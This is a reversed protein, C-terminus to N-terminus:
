PIDPVVREHYDKLKESTEYFEVLSPDQSINAWTAFSASVLDLCVRNLTLKTKAQELAGEAVCNQWVTRTFATPDDDLKVDMLKGIRKTLSYLFDSRKQVTTAQFRTYLSHRRGPEPLTQGPLRPAAELLTDALEFWFSNGLSKIHITKLFHLRM